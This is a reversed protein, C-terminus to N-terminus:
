ESESGSTNGEVVVTALLAKSAAIVRAVSLSEPVIHVLVVFNVLESLLDVLGSLGSTSVFGWESLFPHFIVEVCVGSSSEKHSKGVLELSLDM